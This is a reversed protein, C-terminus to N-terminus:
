DEKALITLQELNLHETSIEIETHKPMCTWHVSDNSVVLQECETKQPHAAHDHEGEASGSYYDGHADWFVMQFCSPDAKQVARLMEVRQLLKRALEGSIHVRFYDCDANYDAISSYTNLSLDRDM